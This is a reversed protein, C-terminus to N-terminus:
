RDETGLALPANGAAVAAASGGSSGGPVRDTDWPNRAPGYASNETSSGMAFEDMNTKGVLLARQDRLLAWATADYPPKYNDLIKSAATTRIGKTCFIDKIAVPIGALAPLRGGNAREEDIRKGHRVVADGTRSIFANLHPETEEIRAVVSEALEAAKVERRELMTALESATRRWLGNPM